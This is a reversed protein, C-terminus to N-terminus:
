TTVLNPNETGLYTVSIAGSKGAKIRENLKALGGNSDLRMAGQGYHSNDFGLAVISQNEQGVSGAKETKARPDRTTYFHAALWREILELRTADYDDVDSCCDDVIASATEIFPTLSINSDVEIIGEVASSTTRVAM